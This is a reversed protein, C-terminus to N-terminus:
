TSAANTVRSEAAVDPVRPEARFLPTAESLGSLTVGFGHSFLHRTWGDVYGGQITGVSIIVFAPNM